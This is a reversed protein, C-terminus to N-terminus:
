RYTSTPHLSILIRNENSQCSSAGLQTVFSSNAAYCNPVCTSNNLLYLNAACSTCNNPTGPYLCQSCTPDCVVCAALNPDAYFGAPCAALCESTANLLFPNASTSLCSTCSTSGPGSCTLCSADCVFCVQTGDLQIAGFQGPPCSALCSAGVLWLPSVCSLCELACPGSCSYCTVDCVECTNTASQPFWGIPCTSACQGAALFYYGSNCSQCDVSPDPGTCTACEM